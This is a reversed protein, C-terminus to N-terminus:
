PQISDVPIDCDIVWTVRQTSKGYTLNVDMEIHQIVDEGYNQFDQMNVVCYFGSAFSFKSKAPVEQEDTNALQIQCNNMYFKKWDAKLSIVENTKNTVVIKPVAVVGGNRYTGHYAFGSFKVSVHDDEYVVGDGAADKEGTSELSVTMKNGQVECSGGLMQMLAELPVYVVDGDTYVPAALKENGCYVDVDAPVLKAEEAGAACVCSVLSCLMLLLMLLKKM